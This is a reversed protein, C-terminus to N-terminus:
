GSKYFPFSSFRSSPKTALGSSSRRSPKTAVAITYVFFHFFEVRFFVTVPFYDSYIRIVFCLMISSVFVLVHRATVRALRRSSAAARRRCEMCLELRRRCRNTTTACWRNTTAHRHTLATTSRGVRAATTASASSTAVSTSARSLRAFTARRSRSTRTSKSRNWLWNWM